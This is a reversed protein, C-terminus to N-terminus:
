PRRRRHALLATLGLALTLLSTPEPAFDGADILFVPLDGGFLADFDEGVPAGTADPPVSFTDTGDWGVAALDVGYNGADSAPVLPDFLDAAADQGPEAPVPVFAICELPKYPEVARFHVDPEAPPENLGDGKAEETRALGTPPDASRARPSEVAPRQRSTTPLPEGTTLFGGIGLVLSDPLEV